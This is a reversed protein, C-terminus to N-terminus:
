YGSLLCVFHEFNAGLKKGVRVGLDLARRLKEQPRMNYLELKEQPRM